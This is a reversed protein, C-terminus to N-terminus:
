GVPARATALPNFSLHRRELGQNNLHQVVRRLFLGLLVVSLGFLGFQVAPVGHPFIAMWFATGLLNVFALPVLYKWCMTMM